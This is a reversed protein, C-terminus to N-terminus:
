IHILSLGQMSFEVYYVKGKSNSDPGVSITREPLKEGTSVSNTVKKALQQKNKDDTYPFYPDIFDKSTM